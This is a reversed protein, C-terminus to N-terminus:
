QRLITVQAFSANALLAIVFMVSLANLVRKNLPTM